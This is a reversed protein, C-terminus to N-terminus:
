LKNTRYCRKFRLIRFFYQLKKVFSGAEYARNMSVLVEDIVSKQIDTNLCLHSTRQSPKASKHYYGSRNNWYLLEGLQLNAEEKDRCEHTMRPQVNTALKDKDQEDNSQMQIWKVKQFDKLPVFLSLFGNHKREYFLNFRISQGHETLLNVSANTQLSNVQFGILVHNSQIEVKDGLRMALFKGETLSNKFHKVFEGECAFHEVGREFNQSFNECAHGKELQSYHQQIANGIYFGIRDALELKPHAPHDSYVEKELHKYIMLAESFHIFQANTLQALRERDKYVTSTKNLFERVSIGIVVLRTQSSITSLLEFLIEKFDESYSYGPTQLAYQEDNPVSDFLVIDYASFDMHAYKAFQVGPSAGSSLNTWSARALARKMGSIYGNKLISNSTGLVLIKM